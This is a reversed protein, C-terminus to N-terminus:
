DISANPIKNFNKFTFQCKVNGFDFKFGGCYFTLSDVQQVLNYIWIKYLLHIIFHFTSIFIILLLMRIFHM